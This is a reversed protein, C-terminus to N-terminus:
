EDRSYPYTVVVYDDDDLSCLQRVGTYFLGQGHKTAEADLGGGRRGCVQLCGSCAEYGRSTHLVDDYMFCELSELNSEIQRNHDFPLLINDHHKRGEQWSSCYEFFDPPTRPLRQPLTASGPILFVLIAPFRSSLICQRDGMQYMTHLLSCNSRIKQHLKYGSKCQDCQEKKHRSIRILMITQLVSDTVVGELTQWELHAKFSRRTGTWFM